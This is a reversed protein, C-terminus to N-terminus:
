EVSVIELQLRGLAQIVPLLEAYAGTGQLSSNALKLHAAGIGGLGLTADLPIWRDRIWAETWMHYAFGGASPYYVLGIAVRAPIQRARCLAALLMAHETCDGELSQAVEAATAMATSYNKLRISNKVQKELATAITWADSEGSAVSEALKRVAPDDSQLMTSAQRDADTPPDSAPSALTAPQDPRVAQVTLEVANDELSRISQTLGAAFLSKVDGDKLRARYVIRRTQHPDRLPREIRVLTDFGLDFGAGSSPRQADEPTTRVAEMGLLVNKMKQIEGQGDVWLVSEIQQSGIRTVQNIRLLQRTGTPLETSELAVADFQLESIVNLIPLLAKLRRTEGPKMPQRRLSHQDAFFGGYEQEWALTQEQTKGQNSTQLQLRGGEVRGESVTAGPGTQMESRFSLLGGSPTEVGTLRTRVITEAGFRKLKMEDDYAFRVAPPDQDAAPELILHTFGMRNGNISCAMWIEDRQPASADRPPAAPAALPGGAAPNVTTPQSDPSGAAPAATGGGPSCATGALVSVAGLVVLWHPCPANM